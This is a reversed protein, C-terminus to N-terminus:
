ELVFSKQSCGGSSQNIPSSVCSCFPVWTSLVRGGGVPTLLSSISAVSFCTLSGCPKLISRHALPRLPARCIAHPSLPVSKTPEHNPVPPLTYATTSSPPLFVTLVM